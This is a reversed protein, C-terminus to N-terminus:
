KDPHLPIKIKREATAVVHLLLLCIYNLNTQFLTKCFHSSFVNGTLCIKFGLWFYKM